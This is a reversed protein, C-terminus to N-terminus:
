VMRVACISAGCARKYMACNVRPHPVRSNGLGLSRGSSVLIGYGHQRCDRVLAQAKGPDSSLTRGALFGLLKKGKLEAAPGVLENNRCQTHILTFV